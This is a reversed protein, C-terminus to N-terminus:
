TRRSRQWTFGSQRHFARCSLKRQMADSLEVLYEVSPLQETKLVIGGPLEVSSRQVAVPEIKPVVELFRVKPEQKERVKRIRRVWYQLVSKSVGVMEAFRVQSLGSSELRAVIAKGEAFTRKRKKSM